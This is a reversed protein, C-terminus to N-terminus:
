RGKIIRAAMATGEVLFYFGVVAIVVQWLTPSLDDTTCVFGLPPCLVKDFVFIKFLYLAPGLAIFARFAANLPSHGEAILVDRRAKLTKIREEAAIEQQKTEANQKQEYASALRTAITGIGIKALWAGLAM